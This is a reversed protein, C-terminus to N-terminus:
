PDAEAARQLGRDYGSRGFLVITTDRAIKVDAQELAPIKYQVLDDLVQCQMPKATWKAEGVVTVKSRSLGVIDIEETSRAGTRRLSNLAPGWWAGVTTALGEKRTWARCWLEFEQGVHDNVVPAIENSFLSRPSLGAEMDSQFPFVFRFWFRLFPETLHWNGTRATRPAHVPLRRTVLRMETLTSLYKTVISSEMRMVQALENVAKDGSALLELIGFYAAPQRLEQEVVARGENWLPANPGLVGAALAEELSGRGLLSLYRPVGGCVAYREFREAGTLHQLFVGADDYALPRVEFRQLRGHLPSREAFLAEMPSVTSGSIILRTQSAPREEEIVAQISTLVREAEATTSPLLYPFEDIVVTVPGDRGLRLCVRFLDTVDSLRPAVGVAVALQEAFRDLQMGEALREAVLVVAPKGHVFRRLLWSKGIRRRGVVALPVEWGDAWWADLGALEEVRNVFREVSPWEYREM